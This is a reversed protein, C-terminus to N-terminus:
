REDLVMNGLLVWEVDVRGPYDQPLDHVHVGPLEPVDDNAKASPAIAAHGVLAAEVDSDCGLDHRNECERLVHLVQPFSEGLDDNRVSIVVLGDGRVFQLADARHAEQELVRDHRVEHLCELTLRREDVTSWERVDGVPVARDDGRLVGQLHCVIDDCLASECGVQTALLEVVDDAPDGTQLRIRGDQNRAYSRKLHVAAHILAVDPGGVELVELLPKRVEVLVDLVHLLESHGHDDREVPKRGVALLLEVQALLM